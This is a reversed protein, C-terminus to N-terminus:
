DKVIGGVAKEGQSKVIYYFLKAHFEDAVVKSSQTVANKVNGFLFQYLHFMEDEYHFRNNDQLVQYLDLPKEEILFQVISKCMKKCKWSIQQQLLVIKNHQLETLPESRMVPTSFTNCFEEMLSAHRCQTLVVESKVDVEANTLLLDRHYSPGAKSEVERLVEMM